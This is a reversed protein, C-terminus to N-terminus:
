RPLPRARCPKRRRKKREAAARAAGTGRPDAVGIHVKKEADWVIAQVRGFYPSAPQGQPAFGRARLADLVEKVHELERAAVRSEYQLSPGGWHWRPSFVADRLPMGLDLVRHITQVIASIIRTEGASGAVLAPWGDKLLITPSQGTTHRKGAGVRGAVGQTANWFFGLAKSKGAGFWPGLSQTFSCANGAADVVSIHTTDGEEDHGLKPEGAKELNIEAARKKAHEKSLLTEVRSKPDDWKRQRDEFSLRLAEILIHERDAATKLKSFDFTELVNLAEIVALGSAPRDCTLVDYGRFTSRLVDRKVAKYAALDEKRVLGGNERMEEDIAAAIKGAYFSSPDAQVAELTAVLADFNKKRALAIAPALVDKWPLSGAEKHALALAALSGPTCISKWGGTDVDEGGLKPVETGGDVHFARGDKMAVLFQSRGGMGSHSPLAVGMAFATAVAGDVANGGQELVAVGAEAGERHESAVIGHAGEATKDRFRDQPFLLLAIFAIPLLARIMLTM